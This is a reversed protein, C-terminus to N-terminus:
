RAPPRSMFWVRPGHDPAQEEASVVFGHRGYWPVTSPNGTVLFSPGGQADVRSLGDSLVTRGVGAGRREPSTAVLDLYWHPTAPRHEDVWEWFRAMRAPSGGLGALVPDVVADLAANDYDTGPPLWAAAGSLDDVVWLWGHASLQVAVERFEVELVAAVDDCAMCWREIPDDGFARVLLRAM